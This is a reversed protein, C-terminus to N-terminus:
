SIVLEPHNKIYEAWNTSSSKLDNHRVAQCIAVALADTADFLEPTEVINLITKVMFQVQEKSAAGRGTVAKKVERPSYETIPIGKLLVSLMASARAQSLKLLTQINKSYFMTEFASITPKTRKIVENLRMHIEKLRLNFEIQQRKSEIVGHEILEIENGKKLVVGYGCVVSGPDIGLITVENM